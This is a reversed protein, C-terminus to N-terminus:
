FDEPGLGSQEYVSQAAAVNMHYGILAKCSGDFSNAFDTIMSQGTIEVSQAALGHKEVFEESALVAAGSGDSTPSCQLKALPDYIM